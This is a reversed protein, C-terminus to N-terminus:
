AARKRHAVVRLPLSDQAYAEGWEGVATAIDHHRATSRGCLCCELAHRDGLEARPISVREHESRGATVIHRPERRCGSCPAFTGTPHPQHRQIM